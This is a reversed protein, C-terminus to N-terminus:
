NTKSPKLSLYGPAARVTLGPRNVKIKTPIWDLEKPAPVETVLMYYPGFDDSAAQTAALLSPYQGLRLALGGSSEALQKLGLWTPWEYGYQQPNAETFLLPYVSVHVANLAEVTGEYMPLLGQDIRVEARGRYSADATPGVPSMVTVWILAKRGPSAKLLDAVQLLSKMQDLGINLRSRPVPIATSLLRLNRAQEEVKADTIPPADKAKTGATAALAAALVEPSTRASYVLRVGADTNVLLTVPLRHSAVERLLQRLDRVNLDFSRTGINVADYMMVVSPRPDERTLPQPPVFLMDAIRVGKPGGIQFDSAKLDTVPKGASDKVVVPMLIKVQSALSSPLLVLLFLLQRM